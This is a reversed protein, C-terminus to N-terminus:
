GDRRNNEGRCGRLTGGLGWSASFRPHAQADECRGVQGPATKKQFLIVACVVQVNRKKLVAEMWSTRRPSIKSLVSADDRGPQEDIWLRLRRKMRRTEKQKRLMSYVIEQRENEMASQVM